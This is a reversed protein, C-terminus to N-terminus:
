PMLDASELELLLSDADIPLLNIDAMDEHFSFEQRDPKRLLDKSPIRFASLRAFDPLRRSRFQCFIRQLDQILVAIQQDDIFRCTHDTVGRGSM